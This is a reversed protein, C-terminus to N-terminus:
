LGFASRMEDSWVGDYDRHARLRDARTAVTEDDRTDDRDQSASLMATLRRVIHAHERKGMEGNAVATDVVSLRRAIEGRTTTVRLLAGTEM